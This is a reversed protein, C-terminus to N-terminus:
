PASGASSPTLRRASTTSSSAGARSRRRWSRGLPGVDLHDAFGLVADLRMSRMWSAPAPRRTGRCGSARSCRGRRRRRARALRPRGDDEARREVLVGDVRELQLRDVVQQLRHRPGAEVGRQGASAGSTARLASAAPSRRPAAAPRRRAEEGPAPRAIWTTGTASTTAKLKSSPCVRRCVALSCSSICGVSACSSRRSSGCATRGPTARRPRAARRWGRPWASCRRCRASRATWRCTSRPTAAASAAAARDARVTIATQAACRRRGATVVCRALMRGHETCRRIATTRTGRATASVPGPASGGAPSAAAPRWRRRRGANRGAPPPWRRPVAGGAQDDASSPTSMVACCRARAPGTPSRPARRCRCARRRSWGVPRRRGRGRRRLKRTRSASSRARRGGCTAARVASPAVTSPRRRPRRTAPARTGADAGARVDDQEDAVAHADRM